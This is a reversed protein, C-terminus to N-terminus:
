FKKEFSKQTAEKTPRQELSKTIKDHPERKTLSKKGNKEVKKVLIKRLLEAM